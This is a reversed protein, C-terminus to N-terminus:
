QEAKLAPLLDARLAGKAAVAASLLGFALIGLLTLAISRWPVASGDSLLFPMVTVLAATTGIALGGVLPVANELVVLLTLRAQRFGFARLTALEGRREVLGRVLVVALGITGLLLGLGGLTQFTQLFTNRVAHFAALKDAATSADFGYPELYVELAQAVDQRRERPADALFYSFGDRSPFHRLLNAESILLESQFISTALMGVIQLRLPQGHEDELEVTEGLKVKLIYSLSEFDGIAPVVGAGLDQQLLTWPNDVATAQRTFTFAGREILSDPVGLIRPQGPQYLNLCSTDDGPLLRLPTIAVGALRQTAADPMGLEFRGPDSDLDHHLPIDSQAVLAFGGTGSSRDLEERRYDHQMSAVTVILFSAAALLSASLLGRGRQRGSNAAAMSLLSPLGVTPRRRGRGTWLSFWALFGLLLLPGATFFVAPNESNDSSVAWGLLLLALPVLLSLWRALRGRPGSTPPEVLRKLLRTAPVQGIRRVTWWISVLVVVLSILFGSALSSPLIHLYLASTGMAPQWWSRLAAMMLAAYGVAGALGLLGGLLALLLGEGLLRHRVQRVTWGVAELLGIEAARQEVGLGFLLAALLAAAVILFISFGVFLGGFDTAGSAAALGLAKVPQLVLGLSEAPLLAPLERELRGILADRDGDSPALRLATLAGWRNRWLRQGTALHVFAKPTGRYLDWYAEDRDSVLSLDLPFPPDWDSMDAAGAIGPYDQSLRSDAGLGTLAVIGALRLPHSDERLEERPGVVFYDLQVSDGVKAGLEEAAWTNLLIENEALRPALSGDILRLDGFAAAPQTPMASVTSYALHREGISLSNALYTYIPLVAADGAVQEVATVLSPRLIFEESELTVVADHPKALVGIDALHLQRRLTEDLLKAQEQPDSDEDKGDVWLGNISGDEALAKQLRELPVFINRTTGQHTELAFRGMGRDAVIEVVRLRLTQVVDAIAKQGLLSGTPVQSWRKLSLLLDDGVEAGLERALTRNIAAPPFPSRKREAYLAQPKGPGHDFLALAHRGVGQLGVGNARARSSAHQASARLLIVPAVSDVQTTFDDDDTLRQVIHQPFFRQGALAFDIHGLRELTLQRLSGRVSDGVLLAGTLVATAVAAGLIVALHTRWYFSLTARM